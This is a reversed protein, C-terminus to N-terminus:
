TSLRFTILPTAQSSPTLGSTFTAPLMSYATSDLIVNGTATGITSPFGLVTPMINVGRFTISATSNHVYVFWYLGASLTQNITISQVTASDGAITGADLLLSNPYVNGSDSYIGLRVLSAATGAITIEIGIRDLTVAKSFIVPHAVFQDKARSTTSVTQGAVMTSYWREPATTGTRRYFNFDGTSKSNLQTQISSTADLYQFLSANTLTDPTVFKNTNTGTDVEAQTAQYPVDLFQWNTGNSYYMGVSYYTGGLSGPLWSTGQSASCWYFEGSVTNAAPLSSYNAVVTIKDFSDESHVLDFNGSLPNYKQILAM